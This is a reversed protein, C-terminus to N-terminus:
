GEMWGDMWEDIWINVLNSYVREQDCFLLVSASRLSGHRRADEKGLVLNGLSGAEHKIFGEYM